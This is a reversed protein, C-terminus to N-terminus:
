AAVVAPPSNPLGGAEVPVEVAGPVDAGAADLGAPDSKPPAEVVGAVCDEVGAVVPAVVEVVPAAGAVVAGAVVAVPPPRNPLLGAPFAAGM